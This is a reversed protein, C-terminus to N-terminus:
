QWYDTDGDVSDFLRRRAEEFENVVDESLKHEELYEKYEKYALEFRKLFDQYTLWGIFHDIGIAQLELWKELSFARLFRTQL